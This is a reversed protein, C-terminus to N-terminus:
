PTFELNQTAVAIVDFLTTGGARAYAIFALYIGAPADSPWIMSFLNPRATSPLAAPISVNRAFPPFPPTSLCTVEVRAGGDAIFAVADGGPCSFAPGAQPPLFAGLYGDVATAPGPNAEILGATLTEGPRFATENLTLTLTIADPNAIRYVVGDGDVVYIEGAEDEGFSYIGVLDSIADLLVTQVGDKLMLIERSCLDGYVYADPPLSGRMGRYVYGGIIACRFSSETEYEAIPFIFGPQGCLEPDNDTCHTGEFVRWGYNGGLTVLDIEEFTKEGVDAVYLEGTKRDFSFRWPNRFGLAFIEDRGPRGVFPNTPPSSYPQSASLPHDVDIRLIKGLLEEIDQARNDPDDQSGGDGLGIYLFGDPGFDIMGGKHAGFPQSVLLIPLETPDAVNPNSPSVHYEAIVTWFDPQRSYHVFFRGNERFHPHFTLGLLGREGVFFVLSSLDLFITPEAAGPQLVKILGGQEVIFLRGSGDRAHTVFLPTDLGSVVPELVIRPQASLARADHLVGAFIAFTVALSAWHGTIGRSVGKRIGREDRV